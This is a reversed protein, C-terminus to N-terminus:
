PRLTQLARRGNHSSHAASFSQGDDISLVPFSGFAYHCLSKLRHNTSIMSTSASLFDYSKSLEREQHLPEAVGTHPLDAVQRAHAV